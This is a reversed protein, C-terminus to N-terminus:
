RGGKAPRQGEVAQQLARWREELRNRGAMAQQDLWEKARSLEARLDEGGAAGAKTLGALLREARDRLEDPLAELRSAPAPHIAAKKDFLEPHLYKGREAESKDEEVAIPNADAWADRRVGTVQWCVKVRPVDTRIIFGNGKIEESVMARAFEGITTLQYRFDRNLAEFYRPLEVRAVGDDDTTVTGSYVNLMEPSEVFSHSLYKNEPDQPHDVTFGGGAKSLPGTVRVSGVFLGAFGNLSQGRVAAVDSNQRIDAFTFGEVGNGLVSRGTVGAGADPSFNVGVVGSGTGFSTGESGNASGSVGRVGAAVDSMGHVGPGPRDLQAGISEGRVGTGNRTVGHV